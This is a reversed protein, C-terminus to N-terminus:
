DVEKFHFGKHTTRNRNNHLVDHVTGPSGDIYNACETISNFIVGTEVIQVKQGRRGRHTNRVQSSKPDDVRLIHYGHCTSLGDDGRSVKGLWGANVGLYDACARISNFEEGTEEIRIRVGDRKTDCCSM